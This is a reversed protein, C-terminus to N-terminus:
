MEEHQFANLAQEIQQKEKISLQQKREQLAMFLLQENERDLFDDNPYQSLLMTFVPLPLMNILLKFDEAYLETDSLIDLLDALSSVENLILTIKEKSNDIQSIREVLKQYKRDNMRDGYSFTIQPEREPYAPILFVKDLTKMLVANKITAALKSFCLLTYRRSSRSIDMERNLSLFAKKLCDQIEKESQFIFQRYLASIDDENLNLNKPSRCRMVLGLASLLVPEFINLPVSYYDRTLGSLLHHIDQPKFCICFANEAEICRLYHEIFEIGDVEPRGALIPYDATIHIEHAAFQPRYLKFFGNIGDAITSRYYVNPTNLLHSLIKKQFQRSVAMKRQVFKLGSEFLKKLSESKLMDVAQEPTQYSKLQIGIVFLISTMIDQAKEIPISSSEGRNWKDTQEALILLLDTQIVSLDRDSLLGCFRAQEILSQFYYKPSLLEKKIPHLIDPTEM